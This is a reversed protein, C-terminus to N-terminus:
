PAAPLLLAVSTGEGPASDLEVRGGMAEVAKRALPLGLGAGKNKTSVFPSFVRTRLSEPVGPGNDLVQLAAQDGCRAARVTLRAGGDPPSGEALAELSNRLLDVLCQKLLVADAWALPPPGADTVAATEVSAAEAADEFLALTEQALAALDVVERRPTLAGPALPRAFNKTAQLIADLKRSEQLIIAAKESDAETLDESRLLANAFGAITFLPNKIEHAIYTSLEGIAAM